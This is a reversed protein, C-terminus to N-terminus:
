TRAVRMPYSAAACVTVTRAPWLAVASKVIFAADTVRSATTVVAVPSCCRFRSVPLATALMGTESTGRPAVGFMAESSLARAGPTVTMCAPPVVPLECRMRMRPAFETFREFSGSSIM